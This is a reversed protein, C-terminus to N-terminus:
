PNGSINSYDNTLHVTKGDVVDKVIPHTSDTLSWFVWEGTQEHYVEVFCDYCLLDYPIMAWVADPAIFPRHPNQCRECDRM